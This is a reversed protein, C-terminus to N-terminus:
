QVNRASTWDPYLDVWAQNFDTDPSLGKAVISNYIDQVRREADNNSEARWQFVQNPGQLLNSVVAMYTQSGILLKGEKCKSNIDPNIAWVTLEHTGDPHFIIPEAKGSIPTTLDVLL